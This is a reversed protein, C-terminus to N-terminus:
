KYRAFSLRVRNINEESTRPRGSKGKDLVTGTEMFKGKDHLFLLIRRHIKEMCLATTESLGYM